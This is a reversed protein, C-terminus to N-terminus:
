NHECAYRMTACGYCDPMEDEDPREEAVHTGCHGCRKSDLASGVHGPCNDPDFEFKRAEM